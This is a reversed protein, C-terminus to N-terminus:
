FYLGYSAAWQFLVKIFISQKHTELELKAIQQKLQYNEELLLLDNEFGSHYNIFIPLPSLENFVTDM